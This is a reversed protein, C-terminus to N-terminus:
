EGALAQQVEKPYREIVRLYASVTADPHRRRQEWGKLTAVPIRYTRAFVEQSMRLSRRIAKVDPVMVVHVITGPAPEGRVYALANNLGELIDSAFPSMEEPM